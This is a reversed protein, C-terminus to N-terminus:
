CGKVQMGVSGTERGPFSRDRSALSGAGLQTTIGAPEECEVGGSLGAWSVRKTIGLFIGGSDDAVTALLVAPRLSGNATMIMAAITTDITAAAPGTPATQYAHRDARDDAADAAAASVVPVEVEPARLMASLPRAPSIVMPRWCVTGGADDGGLEGDVEGPPRDLDPDGEGWM